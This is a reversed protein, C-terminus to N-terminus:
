RIIMLKETWLNAEKEAKILYSGQELDSIDLYNYESKEINKVLKGLADFITIKAGQPFNYYVIEQAPNPFVTIEEFRDNNEKKVTLSMSKEINADFILPEIQQTELWIKNKLTSIDQKVKLKLELLDENEEIEQVLPITWVVNVKNGKQLFSSEDFNTLVNSKLSELQLSNEDFQLSFQMAGLKLKDKNKIKLILEDGKRVSDDNIIFEFNTLNRATSASASLNIDGTKVAIINKDLQNDLLYPIILSDSYTPVQNQLTSNFTLDAPIFHWIPVNRFSAQYGLIVRKIESVDLATLTGTNNVDGAIKKYNSNFNDYGLIHRQLLLADIATLGRRVEDKKNALLLVKAGLPLNFEFKGDTSTTLTDNYSGSLLVNVNNLPTNDERLVKGKIDATASGNGIAVLGTKTNVPISTLGSPLYQQAQLDYFVTQFEINSYNGIPATLKIKINFLLSGNALTKGNNELFTKSFNVSSAIVNAKLSDQSVGFAQLGEITGVVFNTMRLSFQLHKIKNFNQVRVPVLITEGEKGIISGVSITVKPGEDITIDKISSCGSVKDTVTVTYKGAALDEQLVEDFGNNWLFDFSGNGGTVNIKAKGDKAGWYSEHTVTSSVNLNLSTFSNVVDITSECTSSNKAADKVTLLVKNLGLNACNFNEKSAEFSLQNVPSCNDSSGNDFMVAPMFANGTMDLAITLGSKCNAIPKVRDVVEVEFTCTASNNGYDTVKFTVTSKGINFSKATIVGSQESFNTAGSVSYSLEQKTCNDNISLPSSTPLIATCDTSNALLKTNSPCSIKPKSVDLVDIEFSCQNTNVENDTVKYIIINKGINLVENAFIGNGARDNGTLDKIVYSLNAFCNDSFNLAPSSIKAYCTSDYANISKNAPCIIKPKVLDVVQVEFTCIATNSSFDTAKYTFVTKGYNLMINKTVSNGQLITSGLTSFEWDVASSPCNENIALTPLNAIIAICSTDTTNATLNQPCTIMPAITEFVSVNFICSDVNNDNDRVYFNVTTKGVNFDVQNIPLFQNPTQTAGSLKYTFYLAAASCNDTATIQLNPAKQSCNTQADLSFDTVCQIVPRQIDKIIVNFSCTDINGSADFLTYKVKTTGVNFTFGNVGNEVLVISDMVNTAGSLTAKLRLLSLTTCNDSAGIPQLGNTILRNCKGSEANLITDQRCMLSPRVLPVEIVTVNYSCEAFNGSEDSAKYTVTTLGPVYQQSVPVYGIGNSNVAGKLSYSLILSNAFSCNDSFTPQTLLVPVNCEGIATTTHIPFSNCFIKPKTIDEVKITQVCTNSNADKDTVAFTVSTIGKAFRQSVVQQLLTSAQNTAGELIFSTVLNNQGCNDTRFPTIASAFVTAFCSDTSTNVTLNAPCVVQPKDIDKIVVNFSCAANSNQFADLATYKVLTKGVNFSSNNASGVGIKETAGSFEYNLTLANSLTCNDSYSPLLGTIVIRQCTGPQADLTMDSPCTVINPAIKEDVDIAFSCTSLNSSADTATYFVTTRGVNVSTGQLTNTGSLTTADSFTWSLSVSGNCNDNAIAKLDELITINCANASATFSLNSPCSLSPPYADLIKLIFKIPTSLPTNPNGDEASVFVEVTQGLNAGSFVPLGNYPISMAVDKFYVLTCNGQVNVRTNADFSAACNAGLVVNIIGQSPNSFSIPCQAIVKFQLLFIFSLIINHTRLQQKPLM